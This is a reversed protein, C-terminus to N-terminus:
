RGQLFDPEQMEQPHIEVVQATENGVSIIYIQITMNRWLCFWCAFLKNEVQSIVPTNHQVSQTPDFWLHWVLSNDQINGRHWPKIRWLNDQILESNGPSSIDHFM